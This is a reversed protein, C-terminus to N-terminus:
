SPIPGDGGAIRVIARTLIDVPRLVTPHWGGRSASSDSDKPLDAWQVYVGDPAYRTAAKSQIWCPRLNASMFPGDYAYAPELERGRIEAHIVARAADLIEVAAETPDGPLDCLCIDDRHCTECYMNMPLIM